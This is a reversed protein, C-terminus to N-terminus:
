KTGGAKFRHIKNYTIQAQKVKHNEVNHYFTMGLDYLKNADKYGYTEQLESDMAWKNSLECHEGMACTTFSGSDLIDKETFSGKKLARKIRSLWKMQMLGMQKLQKIESLKVCEMNWFGIKEFLIEAKNKM